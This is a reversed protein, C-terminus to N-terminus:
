WDPAIREDRRTLSSKAPFVDNPIEEREGKGGEEDEATAANSLLCHMIAQPSVHPNIILKRM